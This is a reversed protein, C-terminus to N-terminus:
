GGHGGADARRSHTRLATEVGLVLVGAVAASVAGAAILHEPGVGPILALFPRLQGRLALTVPISAAAAVLADAGRRQVGSLHAPRDVLHLHWGAVLLFAFMSTGAVVGYLLFPRLALGGEEFAQSVAIGGAFALSLSAIVSLPHGQLARAVPGRLFRALRRPIFGIRGVSWSTNELVLALDSWWTPGPEDRPATTPPLATIVMVMAATGLATLVALIAVLGLTVVTWAERHVGLMVSIWESALTAIVVVLALRCALLLERVRRVPLPESARCAAARLVCLGAVIPVFFFSFSVAADYPDDAWPTHVYLARIEKASWVYMLFLGAVVLSALVARGMAPRRVDGVPLILTPGTM